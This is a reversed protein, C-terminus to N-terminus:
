AVDVEIDSSVSQGNASTAILTYTTTQAPTVAVNGIGGGDFTLQQNGPMLVLSAANQVKYKLTTSSGKSVSPPDAILVQIETGTGGLDQTIPGGPGTAQLRFQTAGIQSVLVSQSNPVSEMYSGTQDFDPYRFYAVRMPRFQFQISRMVKGRFGTATLTYTITSANPALFQSPTITRIDEANVLGSGKAPALMVTPAYHVSWNLTVTDDIALPGPVSSTFRSIVAPNLNVVVNTKEFNGGQQQVTLTYVTQRVDQYPQVSQSEATGAPFQQGDYQPTITQRKIVLRSTQRKIM